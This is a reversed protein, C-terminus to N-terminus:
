YPQSGTNKTADDAADIIAQAAAGTPGYIPENKGGSPEPALYPGVQDIFREPVHMARMDSATLRSLDIGHGVTAGSNPFKDPPLVYPRQPDTGTGELRRTISMDYGGAGTAGNSTAAEKVAQKGSEPEGNNHNSGGAM